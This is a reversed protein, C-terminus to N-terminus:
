RENQDDLFSKRNSLGSTGFTNVAGTIADPPHLDRAVSIVSRLPSDLPSTM